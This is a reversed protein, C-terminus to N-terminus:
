EANRYYVTYRLLDISTIHEDSCPKNLKEDVSIDVHGILEEFTIGAMNSDFCSLDCNRTWTSIHPLTQPTPYPPIGKKVPSNPRAM